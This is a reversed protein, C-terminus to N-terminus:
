RVGTKCIVFLVFYHKNWMFVVNPFHIMNM